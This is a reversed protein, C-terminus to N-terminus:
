EEETLINFDKETYKNRAIGTQNTIVIILYGLNQFYKCTDFVGDRDLFLARNM